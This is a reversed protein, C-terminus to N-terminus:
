ASRASEVAALRERVLDQFAPWAGRRGGLLRYVQWESPLTPDARRARAWDSFSPVRGLARALEVGREAAHDLREDRAPVDFGAERLANRLSGFTQWLLSKSPAGPRGELDKGTPARGLEAGLARLQALLDERTAFRRPSLGALHKARNWSGFREIVTQPHVKTRADARFERMTPSRGLRKACARLETLIREDSYRRRDDRAQM